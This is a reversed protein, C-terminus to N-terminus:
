ARPEEPVPQGFVREYDDPTDIDLFAGEDDVDVDVIEARHSRIVAQAGVHMDARRLEAFLSRDFIVPHGHRGERQPRVIPARTRQYATLLARVTEASVLPVDVLTVLMAGVGPHDVAGLGVLLSSLQGLAPEPNVVLRPPSTERALADEIAAVEDAVVVVVDDVGGVRLTRTVRSVFTNGEVGIPLLGKPRGMRTSQGGALVIGPVILGM